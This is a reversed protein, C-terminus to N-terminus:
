GFLSDSTEEKATEVPANAKPKPKHGAKAASKDVVIGVYKEKWSNIFQAETAQAKIEVTTMSDKTRFVKNIVNKEITHGSPVYVGESNKTNIDEIQKFLGLTIEEGLLDVIVEKQQPVEKRQDFDYLKVMKPETPVTSLEKGIALLTIDNVTKFGPLYNKKGNKDLYFNRNGKADGSSVWEQVKVVNGEQNKFTFNVSTAGGKSKDVYAMDIVFDYINSDVPGFSNGSSVVDKEQSEAEADTTLNGFLSM